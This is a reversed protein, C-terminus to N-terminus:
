WNIENQDKNVYVNGNKYVRNKDKAYGYKDPLVDFSNPDAGEIIQNVNYVYNKDKSYFYGLYQFTKSDVGEIKRFEVGCGGWNPGLIYISKEGKYYRANDIKITMLPEINKEKIKELSKGESEFFLSDDDKVFYGCDGGVEDKIIEFTEPDLEPIVENGRYVHKGNNPEFARDATSCGALVFVLFLLIIVSIIKINKKCM